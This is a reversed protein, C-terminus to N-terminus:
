QKIDHKKLAEAAEHLPHKMAQELRTMADLHWKIWDPWLDKDYGEAECTYCIRSSKKENLRM